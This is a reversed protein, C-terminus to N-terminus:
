KFTDVCLCVSSTFVIQYSMDGMVTDGMVQTEWLRFKM